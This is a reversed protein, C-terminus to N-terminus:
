AWVANRDTPHPVAREIQMRIRRRQREEASNTPFLSKGANTAFAAINDSFQAEGMPSGHQKFVYGIGYLDPRYPKVIAADDYRPSVMAQWRIAAFACDLPRAAILAAHIHRQPAEEMSKAWGLTMRHHAQLAQIWKSFADDLRDRSMPRLTTLHAIAQVPLVSELFRSELKALPPIRRSAESMAKTRQPARM